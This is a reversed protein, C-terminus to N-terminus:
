FLSRWPLPVALPEPGEGKPAARAALRGQACSSAAVTRPTPRPSCAEPRVIRAPVLLLGLARLEAMAGWHTDDQGTEQGTKEAVDATKESSIRQLRTRNKSRNPGDIAVSVPLPNLSVRCHRRGAAGSRRRLGHANAQTRCEGRARAKCYGSRRSLRQNRAFADLDLVHGRQHRQTLRISNQAGASANADPAVNRRRAPRLDHVVRILQESIDVRLCDRRPRSVHPVFSQVRVRIALPREPRATHSHCMVNSPWCLRASAM